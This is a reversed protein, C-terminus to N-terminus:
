EITDLIVLKRCSCCYDALRYRYDCLSLLGYMIAQIDKEYNNISRENQTIFYGDVRFPQFYFFFTMKPTGYDIM